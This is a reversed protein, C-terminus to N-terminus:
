QLQIDPVLSFDALSIIYAMLVVLHMNNVKLSKAIWTLYSVVNKRGVKNRDQTVEADVFGKMIDPEDGVPFDSCEEEKQAAKQKSKRRQKRSLAKKSWKEDVSSSSKAQVTEIPAGLEALSSQLVSRQQLKAIQQDDLLHGKSQKEELLEIQQLKKRLARIKKDVGEMATDGSQLFGDLRQVGEKRSTPNKTGDDRMRLLESDGDEEESNIIAPFTATPTPLRRCSWPESSKLDLLKELDVLIDLSTSAFAHASVTLIYDLNRIAIEQLM